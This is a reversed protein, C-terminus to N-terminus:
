KGKAMQAAGMPSYNMELVPPLLQQSVVTKDKLALNHFSQQIDLNTYIKAKADKIVRLCLFGSRMELSPIKIIANPLRLDVIFRLNDQTEPKKEDKKILFIPSNYPSESREIIKNKYLNHIFDTLPRQM